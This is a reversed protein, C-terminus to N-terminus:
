RECGSRSTSPGGGTTHLARDENRQGSLTRQERSPSRVPTLAASSSDATIAKDLVNEAHGLLTARVPQPLPVHRNHHLDVVAVWAAINQPAGSTTAMAHAGRAAGTLGPDNLADRVVHALDVAVNLGRQLSTTAAALDVRKAMTAPTAFGNHDHTIDRLAARLENGTLHLEPDLRRQRGIMQGLDAGLRGWAHELGTLAPRLRDTHLLPDILGQSAAAATIVSTAFALDQQARVILAIDAATPTAALSRHAQLDWSALAQELRNIETPDRQAGSLAAPWRSHLYSGALHEAASIREKAARAHQLSDGPALVKRTDIRGQLARTHGHLTTSVGHSAVYVIHMIRTRAAESDLYGAESLPATPHRRATVLEAARVLNNTITELHPDAPGAGPWGTRQQARHLGAALEHVSAMSPDEDRDPIAAWLEAGAEVVEGWTRMRAKATDPDPNWLMARSTLDADLLLEGVSRGDIGEGHAHSFTM